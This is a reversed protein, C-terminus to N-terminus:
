TQNRRPQSIRRLAGAVLASSMLVLSTPEPVNTDDIFGVSDDLTTGVILGRNNLGIAITSVQNSYSLTRYTSGSLLFSYQIGGPNNSNNQYYGVVEGANNIGLALPALSNQPLFQCGTGSSVFSQPYGSSTFGVIQGSDNVGNLATDLYGPCQFTTFGGNAYVLGKTSSASGWGVIEGSNNIGEFVTDRYGPASLLAFKGGSWIFGSAGYPYLAEGVVVGSNNIGYAISGTSGPPLLLTFSGQQYIFGEELSNDIIEGVITGADNIGEFQMYVPRGPYRILTYSDASAKQTLSFLLPTIAILALVRTLRM